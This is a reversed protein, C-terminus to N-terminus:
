NLFSLQLAGQNWVVVRQAGVRAIQARGTTTLWVGFVGAAVFADQATIRQATLPQAGNLLLLEDGDSAIDHFGGVRSVAAGSPAGNATFRRLEYKPVRDITTTTVYWGTTGGWALRTATGNPFGTTLSATGDAAVRALTGSAGVFFSVGDSTADIPGTAQFVAAAPVVINAAGDVIAAHVSGQETWAVLTRGSPGSALVPTTAADPLAQPTGLTGSASLTAIRPPSAMTVLFGSAAGVVNTVNAIEREVVFTAGDFIAVEGAGQIALHAGSVGVDGALTVGARKACTDGACADCGGLDVRMCDSCVTDGGLYGLEKCNPRVVGDCVEFEGPVFVCEGPHPRTSCGDIQNNGCANAFQSGCFYDPYQCTWDEEDPAGGGGCGIVLVLLYRKVDRTCQVHTAVCRACRNRM